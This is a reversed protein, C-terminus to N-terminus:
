QKSVWDLVGKIRPVDAAEDTVKEAWAVSKGIMAIGKSVVDKAKNPDM